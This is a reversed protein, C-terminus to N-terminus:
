GDSRALSENLARLPELYPGAAGDVGRIGVRYAYQFLAVSLVVAEGAVLRLRFLAGRQGYVPDDIPLQCGWQEGGLAELPLWTEADLSAELRLPEGSRVEVVLEASSTKYKRHMGHSAGGFDQGIVGGPGLRVGGDTYTAVQGEFSWGQQGLQFGPNFLHNQYYDRWAWIGFGSCYRPLHEACQELFDPVQAASLRANQGTYKFTDDVFNFQDIILKRNAGAATQEGLNYDLLAIAEDANLEEGQNAAGIFPAWYSYRTNDSELMYDNGLWSISGDSNFLPDKDVRFEYGLGTLVSEGLQYIQKLRHNIFRQYDEFEPTGAKPIIAAPDGLFDCYGTSHALSRRREEPDETFRMLGHWFEEWCIFSGYLNAHFRTAKRLRQLYHLWPKRFSEDTLFGATLHKSIIPAEDCIHHSYSIRLLVWLRARAAERMLGKLLKFYHEEYTPPFQDVQFGRWPVVLIIANFGDERILAFDKRAQSRTM